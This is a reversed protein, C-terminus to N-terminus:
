RRAAGVACQAASARRKAEFAEAEEPTFRRGDKSVRKLAGNVYLM